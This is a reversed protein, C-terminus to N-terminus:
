AFDKPHPLNKMELLSPLKQETSQAIANALGEANGSPFISGKESDNLLDCASGVKDSVIVRLGFQLAENVVLGWTEGSQSPLILTDSIAYYEGLESQNKFGVFMSRPGLQRRLAEEFEDKLEGTGVALLWLKEKQVCSLLDIAQAILLPNKPWYMKGCYLLVHDEPTIGLVARRSQRLPRWREVQKQFFDVDISYHATTLRREDVGMIKYHHRSHTGIPFFHDFQLYYFKLLLRRIALKLFSRNLAVESTEARLMLSYGAARLLLTSFTIFLPTYAFILVKDPHYKRIAKFARGALRIGSFGELNSLPKTSIYHSRYGEAPHSDWEFVTGFGPDPSSKTGHDCAFFVEVELDPFRSLARFVPAFYQVPHTVLVALRM